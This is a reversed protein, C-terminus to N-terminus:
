EGRKGVFLGIAMMISGTTAFGIWPRLLFLGYGLLFLGGFVLFDRVDFWM